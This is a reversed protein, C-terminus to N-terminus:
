YQLSWVKVKLLEYYLIFDKADSKRRKATARTSPSHPSQRISFSHKEGIKIERGGKLVELLVACALIDVAAHGVKGVGAGVDQCAAAEVDLIVGLVALPRALRDCATEIPRPVGFLHVVHGYALEAVDVVVELPGYELLASDRTRLIALIGSNFSQTKRNRIFIVARKM